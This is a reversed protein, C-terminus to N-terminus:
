LNEVPQGCGELMFPEHSIRELEAFWEDTSIFGESKRMAQRLLASDLADELVELRNLDEYSIIAAIPKGHREICIREKGHEARNILELFKKRAETANVVTM